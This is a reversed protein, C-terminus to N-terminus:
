NKVQKIPNAYENKKHQSLRLKELSIGGAIMPRRFDHMEAFEM